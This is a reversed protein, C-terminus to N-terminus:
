KYLYNVLDAIENVNLNKDNLLKRKISEAVQKQQPPATPAPAAANDNAAPKANEFSNVTKETTSKIQNALNTLDTHGQMGKSISDAFGHLAKSILYHHNIAEPNQIGAQHGSKNNATSQARSNLQNFYNKADNEIRVGQNKVFDRAVNAKKQGAAQVGPIDEKTGAKAGQITASVRQGVGKAQDVKQSAWNSVAKLFENLEEDKELEEKVLVKILQEHDKNM